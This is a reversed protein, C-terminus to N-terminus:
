GRSVVLFVKKDFNRGPIQIFVRDFLKGGSPVINTGEKSVEINMIVLESEELSNKNLLEDDFKSYKAKIENLYLGSSEYVQFQLKKEFEWTYRRRVADAFIKPYDGLDSRSIFDVKILDLHIKRTM